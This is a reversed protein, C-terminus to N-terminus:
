TVRSRPALAAGAGFGAALVSEMRDVADYVDVYRTYLPAPGLRVVDPPRFDPVVLRQSILASCWPWASPHAVSLHAGRREAPAPSALRAGRPELRERILDVLAATLGQSKAWLRDLGADLLVEVGAAVAMLGLVPPSGTAFRTVDPAPDYQPRMAFQDRQGFWGWIPQRLQEQLDRRVYLYAPAGPGANLYKYTCGVALDAGCGDLDVPVAGASHSLDWLMLAGVRHAAATVAALDLRAGSRFNVHSLCVLATREDLVTELEGVELGDVPDSPLLRLTGGRASALGALVYRDTPFDNEDAVIVSRGAAASAALAAGAVKYLNVTTSDCVIVQGPGAGVLDGLRDGVEGPLDIWSQWGEVLRERWDAVGSVWAAAVEDSVRGLSNGDLYIPGDSGIRFRARFGALPDGDDLRALAPRALAPRDTASRDRV